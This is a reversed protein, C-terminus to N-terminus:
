IRENVQEITSGSPLSLATDLKLHARLKQVVSWMLVAIAGSGWLLIGNSQDQTIVGNTVMVVFLNNFLWRVVSGTVSKFLEPIM